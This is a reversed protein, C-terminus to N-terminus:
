TRLPIRKAVPGALSFGIIFHVEADEEEDDFGDTLVDIKLSSCVVWKRGVPGPKITGQLEVRKSQDAVYYAVIKTNMAWKGAIQRLWQFRNTAEQPDGCNFRSVALLFNLQLDERNERIELLAGLDSNFREWNVPGKGGRLQWESILELRCWRLESDFELGREKLAREVDALFDEVKKFDGGRQSDVANALLRRCVLVSLATAGESRISSLAASKSSPIDSVSQVAEAKLTELMKKSDDTRAQSPRRFDLLWLGKDIIRCATSRASAAESSHSHKLVDGLRLLGSAHAHYAHLGLPNLRISENVHRSLARIGENPQVEGKTIQRNLTAAASVHLNQPSDSHDDKNESSQKLLRQLIQYAEGSRGEMRGLVLARHHELAGFHRPYVALADDFLELCEEESFRKLLMERRGILLNTLFQRYAPAAANCAKVITRLVDLEGNHGVRDKNVLEVLVGSVIANRTRYHLTEQDRQDDEYLLGWIPRNNNYCKEIWSSYSVELASVLVELPVSLNDLNSCVAVFSYAKQATRMSSGALNKTLAAISARPDGLRFFEGEVAGRLQERAAPLCLYLSSLVDRSDAMGKAPLMRGALELNEAFHQDVLYQPLREFEGESFVDPIVIQTWGSTAEAISDLEDGLHLVESRRLSVVLCFSINLQRLHREVYTPNIGLGFPDDLFVVLRSIDGKPLKAISDIAEFFRREDISQSSPKVWLVLDHQAAIEFAATKLTTTKGSGAESVIHIVTQSEKQRFANSVHGKIEDVVDRRFAMGLAFPRWDIYAPRFLYDLLRNRDTSDFHMESQKPVMSFVDSVLEIVEAYRRAKGFREFLPLKRVKAEGNALSRTLEEISTDVEVVSVADRLFRKFTPNQLLPDDKLLVIRAPVKSTFRLLEDLFDCAREPVSGCGLFFIPNARLADPLSEMVTSWSQRRKRYDSECIAIRDNELHYPLHGMLAFYPITRSPLKRIPKAIVTVSHRTLSKGLETKLVDYFMTDLTLSIVGCWNVKGLDVLAGTEPVPLAAFKGAIQERLPKEEPPHEALYHDVAALFSLGPVDLTENIQERISEEVINAGTFDPGIILAPSGYVFELLDSLTLSENKAM